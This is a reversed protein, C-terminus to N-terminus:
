ADLQIYNRINSVISRQTLAITSPWAGSTATYIFGAFNPVISASSVTQGATGFRGFSGNTMNNLVINSMRFASSANTATTSNAYCFYYEGGESLLTAMPLNIIRQGTWASTSGTGGSAFTTSNTGQSITYGYSLNSNASVLIALSSTAMSEMRSSNTGTGLSYWGYSLTQSVAHSALASTANNMSALVNVATMTVNNMPKVPVFYLSNQGFSSLSTGILPTPEMFSLTVAAGGGGGQITLTSGNGSLTINNGGYLYLGDNTWSYVNTGATNGQLSWFDQATNGVINLKSNATDASLTINSGGVLVVDAGTIQSSGLTNGSLNYVMKHNSNWDSPRVVSTATGDAVTQSYFHQISM